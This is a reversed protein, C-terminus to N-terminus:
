EALFDVLLDSQPVLVLHGPAGIQTTCATGATPAQEKFKVTIRDFYKTVSTVSMTYCSNRLISSFVGVVQHTNFDVTPRQTPAPYIKAWLSIYASENRASVGASSPFATTIPRALTTFTLNQGESASDGGCASLILAFVLLALKRM